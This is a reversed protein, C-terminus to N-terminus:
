NIELSRRAEMACEPIKLEKDYFRVEEEVAKFATIGSDGIECRRIEVFGVKRLELAISAEDWMWLHLSNGLLDRILSRRERGLGTTRVFQEAAYCKGQDALDVYARARALLDPVVLRFTGGYALMAYTHELAKRFDALSLHELVHSAYVGEATGPLVLPGRRIDGYRVSAPFRLANGSLAASIVRGIIPIREIRLTPSADFNLWGDPASFGCGYQVYTM